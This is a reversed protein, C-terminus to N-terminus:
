NIGNSSSWTCSNQFIWTWTKAGRVRPKTARVAASLSLKEKGSEQAEADIEKRFEAVVQFNFQHKYFETPSIKLPWEHKNLLTAGEENVQTLQDKQSATPFEWDLDIGDLDRDRLFKIVNKVFSQRSKESNTASAFGANAAANAGGVSIVIKLAPNVERYLYM